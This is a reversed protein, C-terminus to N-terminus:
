SAVEDTWRGMHGDISRHTQRDIRPPPRIFVSPTKTQPKDYGLQWQKVAERRPLTSLLAKASNSDTNGPVEQAKGGGSRAEADWVALPAVADHHLCAVLPVLFLLLPSPRTKRIM